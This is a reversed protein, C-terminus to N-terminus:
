QGGNGAPPPPIAPLGPLIPVGALPPISPASAPAASPRPLEAQASREYAQITLVLDKPDVEVCLEARACVACERHDDPGPFHDVIPLCDGCVYIM